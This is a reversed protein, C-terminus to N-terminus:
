LEKEGLLNRGLMFAEAAEVGVSAGRWHALHKLAKISRAHPWPRMESHYIELAKLKLELTSTIDVFWNPIFLPVSQFPQWETSSAVEFFLVTRVFQQPLPRCATLVAEHIIRHDINLDGGHHTYILDPQYKSVLKEVTKIVDLLELSDMRNDPFDHLYLSNVGLLLNARQATAELSSLEKQYINRDRQNSRSTLGEALIVVDVQDGTRTHQAITAGCGLIEDDPHAAIVLIKKSM